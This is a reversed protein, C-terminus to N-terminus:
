QRRTVVLLHLLLIYFTWHNYASSPQDERLKKRRRTSENEKERIICALLPYHDLYGSPGTPLCRGDYESTPASSWHHDHKELAPLPSLSQPCFVLSNLFRAKTLFHTNSNTKISQTIQLATVYKYM